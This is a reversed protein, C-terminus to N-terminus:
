GVFVGVETGMGSNTFGKTLVTGTYTASRTGNTGCALIGGSVTSSIGSVNAGVSVARSSGSGENTYTLSSLPGQAAVTINCTGENVNIEIKSGTECVINVTGSFPGSGTPQNFQYNCGATSVKAPLGFATCNGYTPHITLTTTATGTQTGTFTAEKCTVTRSNVTFVNEVSQEGHIFTSSAESHFEAASAASAAVATLALVAVLALGMVKLSRIM